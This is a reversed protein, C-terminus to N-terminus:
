GLPESAGWLEGALEDMGDEEAAAGEDLGAVVAAGAGGEDPAGAAPLSAPLGSTVSMTVELMAVVVTVAGPLITKLVMVIWAVEAGAGEAAADDEGAETTTEM